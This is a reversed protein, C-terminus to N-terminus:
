LFLAICCATALAVSSIFLVTRILQAKKNEAILRAKLASLYEPTAEKYVPAKRSIISSTIYKKDFNQYTAGADGKLLHRNSRTAAIMDKIFGAGNM